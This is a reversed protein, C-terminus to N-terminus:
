DCTVEACAGWMGRNAARAADELAQFEDVRDEGNPPIYLVCAYGREVLLSNIETDGVSVYALLRDFRDECEVDYEITVREGEVLQANYDAAEQGFCDDAGGTSEPTDALLYRITEGSELEITDGDIARMVVGSEPGCPSGGGCGAALVAAALVRRV